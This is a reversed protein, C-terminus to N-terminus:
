HAPNGRFPRYDVYCKNRKLFQMTVSYLRDPIRLRSFADKYIGGVDRLARKVIGQVVAPGYQHRMFPRKVLDIFNGKGELIDRYLKEIIRADTTEELKEEGIVEPPLYEVGLLVNNTSFYANSVINILERINGPYSYRMLAEMADNSFEKHRGGALEANKKLFWAILLPIDEARERLPPVRIEMKKLRYYLDERFRGKAIEEVLNKNTAAIVQIDIKRPENEGLRRVEREQLVRLFQAQLRIPMNAIEDLFLVGGNAAELLGERNELAGTFTGRRYGFLEAESLTDSLSGCDVAIFKGSKRRGTRHLAKAVLEKGTGSEGTILIDLPSVAALGIRDRLAEVAASKGVIEEYGERAQHLYQELENKERMLQQHALANDIAIAALNCFAAFLSITSESFSGIPASHDAYLVGLVRGSVKLPACLLRGRYISIENKSLSIRADKEINSTVFPRGDLCVDNVINQIVREPNVVPRKEYQRGKALQLKGSAEDRLYILAREVSLAQILQDLIADLLPNLDRISNVTASVHLLIRTNEIEQIETAANNDAQSRGRYKELIGALELKIKSRGFSGNYQPLIDSPVNSELKCLHLYAKEAHDVCESYDDRSLFIQCLAANSRWATDYFGAAEAMQSSIKLNDIAGDININPDHNSRNIIAESIPKAFMNIHSLAMGMFLYGQCILSESQMAKALKLARAAYKEALEYKHQRILAEALNLKIICLQYPWHKQSLRKDLRQFVRMSRKINGKELYIRAMLAVALEHEYFPVNKKEMALLEDIDRLAAQLDGLIFNLCASVYKSHGRNYLALSSNRDENLEKIISHAGKYDGQALKIEACITKFAYTIAHNNCEYVSRAAQESAHFAEHHKGMRCLCEALNGLSQVILIVSRSQISLLVARKHSEHASSFRGLGMQITGLTSYTSCTLYHEGLTDFIHAAKKIAALAERLNCAVRNLSAILNQIRGRLITATSDTPCAAIARKLIYLGRRPNSRLVEVFALEAWLMAKTLNARNQSRNRLINLGQRCHFEQMRPNGAYQYGMALQMHMQARRYAGVNATKQMEMKLLRIAHKPLGLPFLTESAEIAVSCREEKSLCRGEMLAYQYCKFALEHAFESRARSALALAYRVATEGKRGEMYHTALEQLHTDPGYTRELIEAIKRHMAWRRRRPLDGRIVEAILGHRFEVTEEPDMRALRVMQRDNLERLGAHVVERKVSMLSELLDISVARHMLALWRALDRAPPSLTKLRRRLIAGVGAPLDMHGLDEEKFFWMGSRRVLLGQEVLHKLMEELFFPNGGIKQYMWSGLSEKLELDGTMGAVLDGVNQKSFSELTLIEGRQHRVMTEMLKALMERRDEGSRVSVCMLVKHFQIDSSLYDLVALTAEDAKHFDHLLLLTPREKLRRVLERTLLDRFQGAAFESSGAFGGFESVGSADEFHFLSEGGASRTKSLIQRFPAYAGGEADGCRGEIVRWGSLLAWSRLEDMCRTKGSGAEGAIFVTYGRGDMRVRDACERLFRMEAERGVFRAATLRNGYREMKIAASDGGAADKLLGIVEEVSSPRKAPDKNLLARLLQSLAAGGSLRDIPRFDVSGQLHKQILFGPDEDEFPLRRTLLQYILIGLSYLDSVPDAREGLLIEPATYVPMVGMGGSADNRFWGKLGYDLVKLRDEEANVRRVLVNSPKLNGHLVGQSHLRLVAGCLELILGMLEDTSMKESAAYLDKGEVFEYVLFLRNGDGLFGFDLLRAVDPQNLRRLFSLERGLAEMPVAVSQTGWLVKVALRVAGEDLDRCQYAEGMEGSGLFRDIQYREGIVQGERFKRPAIKM